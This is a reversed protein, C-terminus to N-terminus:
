KNVLAKVEAYSRVKVGAVKECGVVHTCESDELGFCEKVAPSFLETWWEVGMAPVRVLDQARLTFGPARIRKGNMAYTQSISTPVVVDLSVDVSKINVMMEMWQITGTTYFKASRSKKNNGLNFPTGSLCKVFDKSETDVSPQSAGPNYFRIGESLCQRVETSNLYDESHEGFFWTLFDLSVVVVNSGRYETPCWAHVGAATSFLSKAIGVVRDLREESVALNQRQKARAKKVNELNKAFIKAQTKIEADAAPNDNIAQLNDVVVKEAESM